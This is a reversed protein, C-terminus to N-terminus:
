SPHDSSGQHGAEIQQDIRYTDRRNTYCDSAEIFPLGEPLIIIPDHLRVIDPATM